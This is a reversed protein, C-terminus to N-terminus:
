KAEPYFENYIRCTKKAIAEWSFQKGYEKIKNNDWKKNLAIKIVESLKAPDAPNCLLGYDESIIVEPIGGVNTGIFPRGCSIAEFMVIPNGEGLSPLVFFDCANLYIPIDEDKIWGILKVNNELGAKRIQNELSEQLHGKGAILCLIDKRDKTVNELAKILYKHGKIDILNSINFLIKKDKPLDLLARCEDTNRLYFLNSDYGNPIVILKSSHEPFLQEIFKKQKNSVLIMKDSNILVIKFIHKYKQIFTETKSHHFTVILKKDTMKAALSLTVSSVFSFIGGSTQDHIIDYDNKNIISKYLGGLTRWYLKEFDAVKIKNDDGYYNLIMVKAGISSLSAALNKTHTSVGGSLALPGCMLVRVM